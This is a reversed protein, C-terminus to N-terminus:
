GGLSLLTVNEGALSTLPPFPKIPWPRRWSGPTVSSVTFGASVTALAEAVLSVVSAVCAAFSLLNRNM